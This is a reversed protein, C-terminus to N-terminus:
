SVAGLLIAEYTAGPETAAVGEPVVLLANASALPLLQSSQQGGASVARYGDGDAEVRVRLYARRGPDKGIAEDIRAPVRIRGDGPLDLMRRLMPRAFLEFTVLASVPNGPLGMVPCEGVRGFALPKGPQVAIRWFDLSGLREIVTRVHDHAGVSVGGSVILLDASEAGERVRAEIATPEDPAPELPLPEGGAEVVAAALAPGNADHIHGWALPEGIPTLEDGTSLIAVRPRRHVELTSLGLAALLGLTSPTVSRRPLTVSSGGAVDHGAARVHAGVRPAATFRVRGDTESAVEIPIVADAGDPLPAGTMIRVTTGPEVAPAPSGGARSEGILRREADTESAIVAYGDMASNAFPPVDHDAVFPRDVPARGLADSLAVTEAPVPGVTALLRELAEDVTLM